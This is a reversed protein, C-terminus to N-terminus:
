FGIPDDFFQTAWILGFGVILGGVTVALMALAFKVTDVGEPRRTPQKSCDTAFTDRRRSGEGGRM